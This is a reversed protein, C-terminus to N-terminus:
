RLVELEQELRTVLAQKEALQKRTDDVLKAPAKQVYSENSLRGELAQIDRHTGALRQELNTQHESLTEASVDLWADRGSVALRLGRAQDVLTVEKLKALRKILEKNDEILSDAQYLLGYKENGPLASSVFRAETVLQQVRSFEAAAIDNM